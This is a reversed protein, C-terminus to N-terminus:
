TMPPRLGRMKRGPRRRYREIARSFDRAWGLADLGGAVYRERENGETWEAVLGGNPNFLAENGVRRAIEAQAAEWLDAPITLGYGWLANVAINRRGAPFITPVPQYVAAVQFAPLGGQGRIIRTIPKGQEVYTIVNALPYGPDANLGIAEVGVLEILEDVDRAATGTGDFYRVSSTTDAIFQRLTGCGIEALVANIAAQIRATAEHGSVRLSVGVSSLKVSVDDQGPWSTYDVAM